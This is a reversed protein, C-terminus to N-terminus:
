ILKIRISGNEEVNNLLEYTAQTHTVQESIPIESVTIINIESETEQTGIVFIDNLIENITKTM